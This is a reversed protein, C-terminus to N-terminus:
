ALYRTHLHNLFYDVSLPSGTVQQILDMSSMLRGKQHINHKLWHVVGECNGRRIDETPDGIDRVLASYFQAATLAGLTYSPFYGIIGSFWHTDQMVGNRYNGATSLGLLETMEDNWAGPLDAVRLEGSLVKQELKYRLLVHLPYTCEDADVRIYSKKVERVNNRFNEFSWEQSERNVNFHNCAIPHFFQLFADSRCIQMEIFLSQSEHMMMGCASGAPEYRHDIPLGQTYLAHGTEHFAAYVSQLFSDSEFRTTVRSDNVSGSSFPHFSTDMRARGYDLGLRESFTRSLSMQKDESFDGTLPVVPSQQVLVNEIIDPLERRLRDFVPDIIAQTLGREWSNALADYPTISLADGLCKAKQRFLNFVEELSEVNSEWDNKARNVRWEQDCRVIAREIAMLLDAPVAFAEQRQLRLERINAKAWEDLEAADCGELYEGLQDSTILEHTMAQLTGAAEARDTAGKPPMMVLNDWDLIGLAHDLAFLRQQVEVVKTYSM